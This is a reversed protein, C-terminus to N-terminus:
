HSPWPPSMSRTRAAAPTAPAGRRPLTSPPAANSLMMSVQRDPSVYVVNPDNALTALDASTVQTVVANLLPLSSVVNGVLDLLCGVLSCPPQSYQVIVQVPTTSNLNQLEPALKSNDATALVSSLLLLGILLLVTKKRKIRRM